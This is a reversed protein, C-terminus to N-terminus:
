KWKVPKRFVATLALIPIIIMFFLEGVLSFLYLHQEQLKGLVKKNVISQTFFRAFFLGLIFYPFVNLVLLTIGSLYVFLQSLSFFGLLFKFKFKYNKGTTLHRRKQRIWEAFTQKSASYMFSDKQLAIKTNKKNAAQNIFLDDDGSAIQYHSTFGKNRFFMSRSYSLNRGVGMYTMGMLSFSFYQMAVFFTDYRILLNLFGKQQQYPGYGLVIETESAYNEVMSSIWNKSKPKCDADTLLLIENAASKIGISLPFKKGHFFNLEQEIHVVKLNPYKTQFEKLLLASEDTSTHNVVIVEFDPYDQELIAPLNEILNYYENRAAIIVSIPPKPLSSSEPIKFFALRGFIVWYYVLQVLVSVAFLGLLFLEFITLSQLFSNIM